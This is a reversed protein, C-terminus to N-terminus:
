ATRVGVMMSRVIPGGIIASRNSAPKVNPFAWGHHVGHNDDLGCNFAVLFVAQECPKWVCRGDIETM